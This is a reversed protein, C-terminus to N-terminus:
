RYRPQYPNIFGSVGMPEQTVYRGADPDYHRHQESHLGTEVDLYQGMLRLPQHATAVPWMRQGAAGPLDRRPDSQVRNSARWDVHGDCDTMEHPEGGQGTHYYRITARRMTGDESNSGVTM